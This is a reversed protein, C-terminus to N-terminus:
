FGKAVRAYLYRGNFGFPSRASFAAGGNYASTATPTLTGALTTLPTKNPYVDFLNDVGLTVTTKAPLKYSARLNTVYKNGTSFDFAANTQASLISSYYVVEGSASWPGLSWDLSGTVKYAPTSSSLLNQNVRAFLAPPAPLTSLKNIAPFRDIATTTHNAALGFDFLGSAASHMRYHAVIDIGKTTTDVGNIFFRAADVGFPSLLGYVGANTVTPGSKGILNETLVIRDKIKIEYGDTTLEFPGEHFVWGLAFNTSKEPKLPQSGLAVAVPSSVPMTYILLPVGNVFNTATSSFYQQQLSPARFGTSLSGRIAFAPTFDYRASLKGSTNSGFDSYDEARVAAAASLKDTLSTEVDVYAGINHRSKDQANVPFLGPFGQAGQQGGAVPGLSYSQLEGAKVQYREQRGEFGFAVDLPAALGADYAKSFNADFVYEGYQLEGSYFGTQSAAGYSSNVSHVTHYILANNGYELSFDSSWGAITGKLGGAWAYDKTHADIMPLFGKPYISLVNGTNNYPRFNAASQDYRNQFSGWGYATWTDNLPKAANAFLTFSREAPDGYRSVVRAPDAGLRTDLGGRSTPHRDKLEASVTLFGDSGLKFGAWGSTTLTGGDARHYSTNATKVDTDYQGYSVVVGGGHNAEKLRLN